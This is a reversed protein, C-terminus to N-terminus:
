ALERIQGHRVDNRRCAHMAAVRRFLGGGNRLHEDTLARNGSLEHDIREHARARDADRREREAPAKLARVDRGGRALERLSTERRDHTLARGEHLSAAWTVPLSYRFRM